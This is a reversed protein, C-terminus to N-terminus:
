SAKQAVGQLTLLPTLKLQSGPVAITVPQPAGEITQGALVTDAERFVEVVVIRDDPATLYYGRVVSPGPSAAFVFGVADHLAIAPQGPVIKWGNAGLKKPRYSADTPPTFREIPTQPGPRAPEAFLHLTLGGDILLELALAAGNDTWFGAM